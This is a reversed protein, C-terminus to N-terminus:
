GWKWLLIRHTSVHGKTHAALFAEKVTRLYFHASKFKIGLTWDWNTNSNHHFATVLPWIWRLPGGSAPVWAFWCGSPLLQRLLRPSTSGLPQSMGAQETQKRIFGMVVLEPIAGGTTSQSRGHQDSILFTSQSQIEHLCKRLRLNEIKLKKQSVQKHWISMFPALMHEM